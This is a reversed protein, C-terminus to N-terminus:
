VFSHDFSFIAIIIYYSLRNPILANWLIWPICYPFICKVWEFPWFIIIYDIYKQIICSPVCINISWDFVNLIGLIYVRHFFLFCLVDKYQNCIFYSFISESEFINCFDLIFRIYVLAVYELWILWIKVVLFVRFVSWPIRWKVIIVSFCCICFSM